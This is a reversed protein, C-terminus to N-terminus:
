KGRAEDLDPGGDPGSRIPRVRHSRRQNQLPIEGEFSVPTLFCLRGRDAGEPLLAAHGM